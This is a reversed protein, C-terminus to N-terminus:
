VGCEQLYKDILRPIPYSHLKNLPLSLFNNKINKNNITFRFFRAYITQHSLQHKYTKSISSIVPTVGEFFNRFENSQLMQEPSYEVKTEFLPFEYLGKWIDNNARKNLITNLKGKIPYVIFLYNFYRKRVATKSSKIPLNAVMDKKYAHCHEIFPCNPCDPNKPKCFLAGFEMMAQNFKGPANKDIMIELIDEIKKKGPNTNVPHEIAFWRSVVRLVNGDMVPKVNGFVISSIAAATYPGIGKLSIINLYDSPFSSNYKNVVTKAAHHLNRSRSYYGLGQWLKLIEDEKANALDDVTPFREIFKLYYHIGQNVRTQTRM